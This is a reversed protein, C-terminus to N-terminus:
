KQRATFSTYIGLLVTIAGMITGLVIQWTQM